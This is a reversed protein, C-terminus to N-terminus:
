EKNGFAAGRQTLKKPFFFTEALFISTVKFM